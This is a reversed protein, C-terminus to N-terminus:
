EYDEERIATQEIWQFGCKSCTVHLHNISVSSSDDEDLDKTNICMDDVITGYHFRYQFRRFTEGDMKAFRPERCVPCNTRSEFVPLSM